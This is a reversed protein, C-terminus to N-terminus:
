ECQDYRAQFVTNQTTMTMIRSYHNVSLSENLPTPAQLIFEAWDARNFAVYALHFSNIWNPCDASMDPFLIPGTDVQYIWERENANMTKIPFDIEIDYRDHLCFRCAGVLPENALTAQIIAQASELQQASCTRVDISVREYTDRVLGSQREPQEGLSAPYRPVGKNNRDWSKLIFFSDTSLIICFDANPQTWMGRDVGVYETKCAAGLVFTQAKGSIRDSIKCRAEIQIRANNVTFPPKHSATLSPKLHWDIRFTLFSRAFDPITM